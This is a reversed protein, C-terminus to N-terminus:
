KEGRDAPGTPEPGQTNTTSYDTTPDKGDNAARAIDRIQDSPKYNYHKTLGNFMENLSDRRSDINAMVDPNSKAAYLADVWSQMNGKFEKAMEKDTRELYQEIDRVKNPNGFATSVEKFWSAKMKGINQPTTDALSKSALALNRLEWDGKSEGPKIALNPVNVLDWGGAEVLGSANRAIVSGVIEQNLGELGRAKRIALVDKERAKQELAAEIKQMGYMKMATDPDGTLDKVIMNTYNKLTGGYKSPELIAQEEMLDLVNDRAEKNIKNLAEAAVAEARLRGNPDVGAATNLLSEKLESDATFATNITEARMNRASEAQQKVASHLIANHTMDRAIEGVEGDHNTKGSRLEEDLAAVRDNATAMADQARTAKVHALNHHSGVQATQEAIYTGVNGESTKAIDEVNKNVDAMRLGAESQNFLADAAKNDADKLGQRTRQDSDWYTAYSRLPNRWRSLKGKDNMEHNLRMNKARGSEYRDRSWNKAKDILGKNPDNVMGAIRSLLSGGLKLTLPVLALPIVQVAMGLIITTIDTANQIILVGALQAGGFILSFAPFLLLMTTFLRRWRNFLDETNPLLYAVFALPSIVVLITVLAQRATLVVLTILVAFLVNLLVPVLLMASAVGAAGITIGAGAVAGALVGGALIAEALSKWSIMEWSNTSTGLLSNRIDIFMDQLSFGLINSIDILIACLWYSVNVLVAAIILRPLLKKIGYNSIGLSTLQSAIIILFALVFCINAFGRMVDWARRMATNETTELYRVELFAQVREFIWDTGAALGNTIPCILWGLGDIRCSSGGEEDVPANAEESTATDITVTQTDGDVVVRGAREVYPVYRASGATAPDQGPEFVLAYQTGFAGGSSIYVQAGEPFAGRDDSNIETPGRYTRGDYQLEGGSWSADAAFSTQPFAIALFAALLAAILLLGRFRSFFMRWPHTVVYEVM